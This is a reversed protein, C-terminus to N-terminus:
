HTALTAPAQPVAAVGLSDLVCQVFHMKTVVSRNLVFPYVDPQGMSRSTENLVATLVVWANVWELLADASPASRDYLVDPAFPTIRFPTDATALGFSAVTQLTARM